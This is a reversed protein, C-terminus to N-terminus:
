AACSGGASRQQGPPDPHPDHCRGAACVKGGCVQGVVDLNTVGERDLIALVGKEMEELSGVAPYTMVIMRYDGRLAEIQQWWIDYSGTMGHLFVITKPGQGTALYEWTVGDVAITSTSTPYSARFAAQLSAVKEAPAKAYVQEFAPHPVPWLYVIVIVLYILLPILWKRQM